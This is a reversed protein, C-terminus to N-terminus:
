IYFQPKEVKTVDLMMVDDGLYVFRADERSFQYPVIERTAPTIENTFNAYFTYDDHTHFWHVLSYIQM